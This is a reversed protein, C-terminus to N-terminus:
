KVEVSINFPILPLWPWWSPSMEIVPDDRLSLSSILDKKISSLSHGRVISFVRMTDVQRILTRSVELEFHSVGSIDTSPETIIKYAPLSTSEFGDAASSNLTSLSLMKLEDDSVYQASFEVQM